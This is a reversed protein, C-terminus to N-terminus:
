AAESVEEPAEGVLGRRSKRGPRFFSEVKSRDSPFRKVLDGYTSRYADLWGARATREAGWAREHAVRAEQLAAAAAELKSRDAALRGRWPALGPADSQAELGAEMVRVTEVLPGPPLEVVPTIGDPFYRRYLPNGRDRDVHALLALQFYSVQRVLMFAAYDRAALAQQLARRATRRAECARELASQACEFTVDLDAVEPDAKLRAQLYHGFMDVMVESSNTKQPPYM